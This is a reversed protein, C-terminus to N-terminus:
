QVWVSECEQHNASCPISHYTIPNQFLSLPVPCTIIADRRLVNEDWLQTKFISNKLMTEETLLFKSEFMKSHKAPLHNCFQNTGLPSPSGATKRNTEEVEAGCETNESSEQLTLLSMWKRGGGVAGEGVAKGFREWTRASFYIVLVM